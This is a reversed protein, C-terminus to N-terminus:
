SKNKEFHDKCEQCKLYDGDNNTEPLYGDPYNYKPFLYCFPEDLFQCKGKFDQCKEPDGFVPPNFTKLEISM